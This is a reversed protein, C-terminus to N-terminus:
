GPRKLAKGAPLGFSYAAAGLALYVVGTVAISPMHSQLLASGIQYLGYVAYGAAVVAWAYVLRSRQWAGIVTMIAGIAIVTSLTLLIAARVREDAVSINLMAAVPEPTALTQAIGFVDGLELVAFAAFLVLTIIRQKM